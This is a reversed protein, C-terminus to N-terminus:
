GRRMQLTKSRRVLDCNVLKRYADDPDLVNKVLREFPCLSTRKADLVNDVLNGYESYLSFREFIAKAPRSLTDAYVAGINFHVCLLAIAKGVIKDAICSGKLKGEHKEVAKLFGAVGHSRSEFLIKGGKVICLNVNNNTLRNKATKLDETTEDNKKKHLLPESNINIAFLKSEPLQLVHKALEENTAGESMRKKLQEIVRKRVHIDVSKESGESTFSGRVGEAWSKMSLRQNGVTCHTTVQIGDITCSFPVVMPVRIAAHLIANQKAHGKLLKKAIYGMRTGIVLFPGLHGHLRVAEDIVSDLENHGSVKQV